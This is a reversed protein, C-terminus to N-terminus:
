IGGPRLAPARTDPQLTATTLAAPGFIREAYLDGLAQGTAGEIQDSLIRYNCNCCSGSTGPAFHGTKKRALAPM